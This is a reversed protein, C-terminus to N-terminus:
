LNPASDSPETQEIDSSQSRPQQHHVVLWLDELLDNIQITKPKPPSFPVDSEHTYLLHFVDQTAKFVIPAEASPLCSKSILSLLAISKDSLTDTASRFSIIHYEPGTSDKQIMYSFLLGQENSFSPPTNQSSTLATQQLEYIRKQLDEVHEPTSLQELQNQHRIYKFATYAEVFLLPVFYLGITLASFITSLWLGGAVYLLGPLIYQALLRIRISLLTSSRNAELWSLVDSISKPKNPLSHQLGFLQKKHLQLIVFSWNKIQSNTLANDDELQDPVIDLM